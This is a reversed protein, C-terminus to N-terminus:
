GKTPISAIGALLRIVILTSRPNRRSIAAGITCAVLSVTTYWTSYLNVLNFTEAEIKAYM